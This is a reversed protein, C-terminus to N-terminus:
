RTEKLFLDLFLTAGKTRRSVDTFLKWGKQRAAAVLSCGSAIVKIPDRHTWIMYADPFVDLVNEIHNLHM